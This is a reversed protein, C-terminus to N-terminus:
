RFSGIRYLAVRIRCNVCGYCYLPDVCVFTRHSQLLVVGNGSHVAEELLVMEEREVGLLLQTHIVKTKIDQLRRDLGAYRKVLSDARFM